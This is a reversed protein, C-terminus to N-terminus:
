SNVDRRSRHRKKNAAIIAGPTFPNINALKPKEGSASTSDCESFVTSSSPPIMPGPCSSRRVEGDCDFILRSKLHPMRPASRPSSIFQCASNPSTLGDFLRMAKMTNTPPSPYNLPSSDSTLNRSPAGPWQIM